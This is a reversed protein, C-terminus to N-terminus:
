IVLSDTTVPVGLDEAECLERARNQYSGKPPSSVTLDCSQNLPQWKPPAHRPTSIDQVPLGWEWGFDFNNWPCVCKRMSLHMCVSAYVSLIVALFVDSRECIHATVYVFMCVCLTVHMDVIVCLTTGWMTYDQICFCWHWSPFM